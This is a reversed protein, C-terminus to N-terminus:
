GRKENIQEQIDALCGAAGIGFLCMGAEFGNLLAFQYGSFYGGSTVVVDFSVCGERTAVLWGQQKDIMVVTGAAAGFTPQPQVTAQMLHFAGLPTHVEFGQAPNGARCARVIEQASHTRNLQLDKPQLASAKYDADSWPRQPQWELSGQQLQGLAQEFLDAASHMLKFTASQTTDFPHLALRTQLGIDGADIDASVQHLTLPLEDLGHRIQWYIPMPGRYNPLDSAHLNMLKGQFYDILPPPFIKGFAFSLGINARWQDLQKLLSAPEASPYELLTIGHPQLTAALQRADQRQQPQDSFYIVVAALQGRQALREILPLSICSSSFVVVRAPSNM